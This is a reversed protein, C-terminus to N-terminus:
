MNEEIMGKIKDKPVYGLSMDLFTNNKVFAILPISEVHFMSALEREHDVNVKYFSVAPYERELEEMIPAMMRCPGCWDAYFDLVCLTTSEEVLEHFTDKTIQKM